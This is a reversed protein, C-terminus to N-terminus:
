VLKADCQQLDLRMMTGEDKISQHMQREASEALAVM